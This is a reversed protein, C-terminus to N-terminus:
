AWRSNAVLGKTPTTPSPGEGRWNSSLTFTEFLPTPIPYGRLTEHSLDPVVSANPVTPFATHRTCGPSTLAWTGMYGSHPAGQIRAQGERNRQRERKHRDPGAEHRANCNLPVHTATCWHPVTRVASVSSIKAHKPHTRGWHVGRFPRVVRGVRM